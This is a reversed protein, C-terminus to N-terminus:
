SQLSARSLLDFYRVPACASLAAVLQIILIVFAQGPMRPLWTVAFFGILSVEGLLWIQFLHAATGEDPEPVPAGFMAIGVIWMAAALSLAIPVWAIPKYILMDPWMSNLLPPGNAFRSSCWFRETSSHSRRKTQCFPSVVRTKM